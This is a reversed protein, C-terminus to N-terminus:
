KKAKKDAPAEDELDDLDIAAAKAADIRTKPSEKAESASKSKDEASPTNDADYFMGLVAAVIAYSTIALGGFTGNAATEQLSLNARTINPIAVPFPVTMWRRIAFMLGAGIVAGVLAKMGAEIKADKAWIPKGAVLGILVGAAAALLYHVVPGPAAMVSPFAYSLGVGFLGGVIIGKLLGLLLRGIM